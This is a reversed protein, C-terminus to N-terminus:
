TETGMSATTLEPIVGNSIAISPTIPGSWLNEGTGSLATGIMAFTATASGGTCAPFVITSVPDFTNGSVSWGGSTRAVAVRTYGTYSVENTTQNGSSTPDATHLSVYLNTLPAVSANDAINPIATANLILKLFQDSFTAGKAM